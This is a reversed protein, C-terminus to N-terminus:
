KAVSLSAIVQQDAFVSDDDFDDTFSESGSAACAPLPLAPDCFDIRLVDYPRNSLKMGQGGHQRVYQVDRLVVDIYAGDPGKRFRSHYM